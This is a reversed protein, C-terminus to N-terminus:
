RWHLVLHLVGADDYDVVEGHKLHYGAKLHINLLPSNALLGPPLDVRVQDGNLSVAKVIQRNVEVLLPSAAVPAQSQGAQQSAPTDLGVVAGLTLWFPRGARVAAQVPAPLPTSLAHEPMTNALQWRGSSLQSAGASLMSYAGDGLRYYTNSIQWSKEPRRLTITLPFRTTAPIHLSRPERNACVVGILFRRGEVQSPLIVRGLSSVSQQWGLEPLQVSAGGLPSNSEADVVMVLPGSVTQAVGGQLTIAGARPTALLLGTLAATLLLTVSLVTGALTPCLTRWIAHKLCRM